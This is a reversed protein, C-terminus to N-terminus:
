TALKVQMAFLLHVIDFGVKSRHAHYCILSKELAKGELTLEFALPRTTFVAFPKLLKRILLLRRYKNFTSLLFHLYPMLKM